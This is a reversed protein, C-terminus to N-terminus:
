ALAMQQEFQIPSIYGITSRRRKSNYFREIYDFVDAKAATRTRYVKNDTRETKLSRFFSEMASNDWCNGSRTMSCTIGLEGLLRQFRDSTYQNDRDSHHIVSEPRRRRWVAVRLADTM